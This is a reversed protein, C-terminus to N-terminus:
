IFTLRNSHKRLPKPLKKKPKGKSAKELEQIFEKITLNEMTEFTQNNELDQGTLRKRIILKKTHIERDGIVLTYPIWDTESKRVRRAVNHDRDDMDIRFGATSLQEMIEEAFALQFKNDARVPILRVQVPSLWIPFGPVKGKMKALEARELVGYIIRELGGSPSTHLLVPHEKSGDKKSYEIGYKKRKKGDQIVETLASEVDIQVTSLASGKGFTDIVNTEFKLVYYFFRKPWLEVFANKKVRQVLNLLWEKNKDFFEETMRFVIEYDLEFDNMMEACLNYQLEFEEKANYLDPDRVCCTHLDPMIFTRLRRIGTLEGEQERRFAYQEFEYMRAPLQEERLNMEKFLFFQLFDCAYRLLYRNNGSHVWYSRAPFAATQATLIPNRVNYMIPTALEFGGIDIIKEEVYDRILNKLIIGQPLYRFNGADTNPDFDILEFKRMLKIHPPDASKKRKAGMEDRLFAMFDEDDPLEDSAIIKNKQVDYSVEIVMGEKTLVAFRSEPHEEPSIALEIERRVEALEHGLCNLEFSKYYGFPSHVAYHGEERLNAVIKPFVEPAVKDKSLFKSLHAWPYVVIQEVVYEQNPDGILKRKKRLKGEFKGAKIANNYKETKENMEKIKAPFGQIEEIVSCIEDAAQRAILDTDFTDQDEISIFSVLTKADHRIINDQEDFEAPSATAIGRKTVKLGDSHILIMKM